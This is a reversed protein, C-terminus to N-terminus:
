SRAMPPVLEVTINPNEAAFEELLQNWYVDYGAELVAYNAFKITVPETIKADAPAKTESEAEKAPEAAQAPAGTTGQTQGGSGSCAATLGMIAAMVLALTQKKM